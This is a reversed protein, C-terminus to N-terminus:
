VWGLFVLHFLWCCVLKEDIGHGQLHWISTAQNWFDLNCEPLSVYGPQFPQVRTSDIYKRNFIHINLFLGTTKPQKKYFFFGGHQARIGAALSTTIWAPPFHKPSMFKQPDNSNSFFTWSQWLTMFHWLRSMSKNKLKLFSTTKTSKSLRVFNFLSVRFFWVSFDGFRLDSWSFTKLHETTTNM